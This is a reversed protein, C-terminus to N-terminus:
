RLAEQATALPAARLSLVFRAGAAPAPDLDLRGGLQEALLRATALGVGEGPSDASHTGWTFLRPRVEPDVGPGSDTVSIEVHDGVTSAELRVPGGAHRRANSLLVNAIEAVDDPRAIVVQGSPRWRIPLGDAEHRIVVPRLTADLETPGPAILARDDVLRDLRRLEAALMDHLQERRATSIEARHLLETATAIGALTGRIEHLRAQDTHLGQEAAELQRRLVRLASAEDLVAFRARGGATILLMAAGVANSLAGVFLLSPSSGAATACGQGIALFVSAIAIRQRLDVALVDARLLRLASWVGVAGLAVFALASVPPPPTPLPLELLAIRTVTLTLGLLMGVALPDHRVPLRDGSAVITVLVLAICIQFLAVWASRATWEAHAIGDVDHGVIRMLWNLEQLAFAATATVLWAMAHDQAIHWHIYFFVGACLLAVSSAFLFLDATAEIADAGARADGVTLAAVILVAGSTAAASRVAGHHTM